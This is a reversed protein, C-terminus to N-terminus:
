GRIARLWSRRYPHPKIEHQRQLVGTHCHPCSEPQRGLMMVLLESRSLLNHHGGDSALLQRCIALKKARQGTALLGYYRIRVFRRPLVHSLFRRIFELVDLTLTKLQGGDRYDRYSFSVRDDAIDLIRHNSIAIRHTYRGLYAVVQEADAFPPKAYVM